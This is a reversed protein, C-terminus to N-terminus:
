PSGYSPQQGQWPQYVWEALRQRRLPYWLDGFCPALEVGEVVLSGTLRDQTEPTALM